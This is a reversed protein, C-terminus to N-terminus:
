VDGLILVAPCGNRRLRQQQRGISVNSYPDIGALSVRHSCRIPVHSRAHLAHGDPGPHFRTLSARLRRARARTRAGSGFDGAAGIVDRARARAGEGGDEIRPPANRRAERLLRVSEEPSAGARLIKLAVVRGLSADRARYVEGSSGQGLKEELVYRDFREGPAREM